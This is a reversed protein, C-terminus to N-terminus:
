ASKARASICTDPRGEPRRLSPGRGDLLGIDRLREDSLAELDLRLAPRTSGRTVARALSRVIAGAEERWFDLLRAPLRLTAMASM